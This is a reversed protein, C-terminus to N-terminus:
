LAKNAFADNNSQIALKPLSNNFDKSTSRCICQDIATKNWYDLCVDGIDGPHKGCLDRPTGYSIVNMDMDELLELDTESRWLVNDIYVRTSYIMPQM